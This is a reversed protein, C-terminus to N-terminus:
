QGWTGVDEVGSGQFNGANFNGVVNDSVFTISQFGRLSFGAGITGLM